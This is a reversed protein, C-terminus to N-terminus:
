RQMQLCKLHALLRTLVRAVHEVHLALPELAGLGLPVQVVEPPLVRVVQAHGHGIPLRLVILHTLCLLARTAALAM